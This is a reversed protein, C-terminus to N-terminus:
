LLACVVTVVYLPPVCASRGQREATVGASSSESWCFEGGNDSRVALVKYGAASHKAEAAAVWAKYNPLAEDKSKLLFAWCKRTFDDRITLFHKAGEKSREPMTGVDMHILELPNRARTAGKEPFPKRASKALVCAECKSEHAAGRLARAIRECDVAQEDRVQEEAFLKKLAAFNLHGLRQHWLQALDAQAVHASGDQSKGSRATPQARKAMTLQYLKNAVKRARAIVKRGRRITCDRDLFRVELGTETLSPVSLLNVAM